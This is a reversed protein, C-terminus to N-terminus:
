DESLIRRSLSSLDIFQNGAILVRAANQLSVLPDRDRRAQRLLRFALEKEEASSGDFLEAPTPLHVNKAPKM